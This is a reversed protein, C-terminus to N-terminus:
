AAQADKGARAQSLTVSREYLAQKRPGSGRPLSVLELLLEAQERKVILFPLLDPLARLLKERATVEVTYIPLNAGPAPRRTQVPTDLMASAILIAPEYTNHVSMRPSYWVWGDSTRTRRTQNKNEAYQRRIALHGEGDILGALWAWDTAQLSERFEGEKSPTQPTGM